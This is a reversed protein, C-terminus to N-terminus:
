GTSLGPPHCKIPAVGIRRKSAREFGGANSLGPSLTRKSGTLAESNSVIAAATARVISPVRRSPLLEKGRELVHVAGEIAVLV